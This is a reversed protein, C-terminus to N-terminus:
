FNEATEFRIIDGNKLRLNEKLFAQFLNKYDIETSFDDNNLAILKKIIDEKRDKNFDKLEVPVPNFMLSNGRKIFKKVNIKELLFYEDKEKHEFCIITNEWSNYNIKITVRSVRKYFNHIAQFNSKSNKRIFIDLGIFNSIMFLSFGEFSDEKREILM